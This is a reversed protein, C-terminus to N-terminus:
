ASDRKMQRLREDVRRFVEEAPIPKVEGSEIQTIRRNIEDIWADDLEEPAAGEEGDELAVLYDILEGRDEPTLAALLPKLKEAADSM